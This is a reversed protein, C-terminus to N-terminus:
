SRVEVLTEQTNPDFVRVFGDVYVGSTENPKKAQAQTETPQTKNMNEQNQEM